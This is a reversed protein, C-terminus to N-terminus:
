INWLEELQLAGNALHKQKPWCASYGQGTGHRAEVSNTIRWIIRQKGVTSWSIQNNCKRNEWPWHTPSVCLDELWSSWSCEKSCWVAETAYAYRGKTYRCCWYWQFVLFLCDIGAPLMCLWIPKHTRKYAATFVLRVRHEPIDLLPSHAKECGVRRPASSNNPEDGREVVRGGM